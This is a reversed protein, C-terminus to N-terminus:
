RDDAQPRTAQMHWMVHGWLDRREVRQFGLSRYLREAKPNENDVLLGVRTHGEAFAKDRMACLLKGGVGRNRFEPYVGLYDLYFEGPMTEDQPEFTKGTCREIFRLTPTRLERLRAGDYGVIAGAPRGNAEAVLANRYSYQTNEMRALQQLVDRHRAGCYSTAAADGIAMALAAALTSADAPTAQRIIFLM